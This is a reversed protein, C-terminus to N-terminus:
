GGNKALWADVDPLRDNRVMIRYKINAVATEADRRSGPELYQNAYANIKDIMAPAFSSRGLAPYYRSRSSGDVVKDVQERHALAFDFALEPYKRSVVTIMGASNTAGPEDTLALDLARQALAKDEAVALLTYLRDKVQPTKEAKAEEHLKDWTAADAHHAVVSLITKRLAVPVAKPDTAQAAYRRQAEAVVATDNLGSLVSILHTRLITTPGSEDPKAEWGVRQFKPALLKVALARFAAQRKADGDYYEDLGSLDGAIEDWIQPDADLPTAKALDLIGSAPQLGAMGLAWTDGMLGLQDVPAIKAFDKKIAAFQTPAYLTRYYGSQGANVLLTGCGPVTLTAEGDVVTSVAKGGAARAIVPVHWRLPQKDPRDRTFEGQTLKLTTSHKTCAGAEVRILPIGPQLTFDHAITTIQKGPAAEDMARWLDDSVANGYAHAKIYNRVGTRWNEEGVYAELMGIVSEGKSYTIADFAQSAQDVTEVHQVVPHTTVVADRSMASERAGVTDSLKTNWEPHLRATTRSAMWSAFGENLWLDDWWRMTVLDGFWQHAMEHAATGFVNQKDQLTSFSPDLLLAYEFTYIAGWNEMASFFQSSGPSAINDLKPLPYKVGFYDNYEKLVAKGSELTFAGQSSLGKQTIVGIETGDESTTVRDFDGTGFFLLYTSMKPSPQFTVLSLGHGVDKKSAVPMNSVAMQDSPVTATLNFTAKYNPEDWSPIFRRADSNEFQTYLARQKGAKTDYDIAFLGNAQTGIKGTYSMALKYSGAPVPKDFTFTATQAKDDVVVKPAKFSGKGSVPTLTVSAFRMDLANLTISSTPTLVDVDVTVKGDFSLTSAHPVVSVDYHTPRVDRPLQTTAQASAPADQAIAAGASSFGALALAIASVLRLRM